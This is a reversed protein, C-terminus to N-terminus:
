TRSRASSSSPWRCRGRTARCRVRCGGRRLAARAGLCPYDPDSVFRVFDARAAEAVAHRMLASGIVFPIDDGPFDYESLLDRVEVEVLKSKVPEMEPGLDRRCADYDRGGVFVCSCLHKAGFGAGIDAQAGFRFRLVGVGVLDIAGTVEKGDSGIATM